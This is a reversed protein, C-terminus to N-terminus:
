FPGAQKGIYYRVAGEESLCASGAATGVSEFCFACYLQGGAASDHGLLWSAVDSALGTATAFTPTVAVGDCTCVPAVGAAFRLTWLHWNTNYAPATLTRNEQAVGNATAIANFNAAGTSGFGATASSAANRANFQRVTGAATKAVWFFMLAKGTAIGATAALLRQTAGSPAISNKGNPGTGSGKPPRNADTAQVADVGTTGLNSVLSLGSGTVTTTSVDVEYGTNVRAGTQMRTLLAALTATVTITVDDSTSGDANTATLRLVYAGDTDFICTTDLSTADAFTVAGPGSIKSWLYSTAGTASGDLTCPAASLM